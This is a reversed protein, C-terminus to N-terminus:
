VQKDFIAKCLSSFCLLHFFMFSNSSVMKNIEQVAMAFSSAQFGTTLFSNLLARHDVGQNFDYGRIEPMDEPLTGSQKLVADRAGSLIQDAM